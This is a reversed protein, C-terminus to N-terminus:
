LVEINELPVIKTKNIKKKNKILFAIFTYIDLKKLMKEYKYNSKDFFINDRVMYKDFEDEKVGLYMLWYPYIKEKLTRNEKKGYKYKSKGTVRTYLENTIALECVIDLIMTESTKLKYIENKTVKYLLYTLFNDHDRLIIRKGITIINNKNDTEIVDLSPHVVYITYTDKIKRKLIKDLELNYLKKNYDWVELVNLRYKNTDQKLKKYLPNSELLNYVLDDNPIFNDGEELIIEKDGHLKLYEKRYDMYIDQKLLNFDSTVSSEYLLHWMLLYKNVVIEFKM